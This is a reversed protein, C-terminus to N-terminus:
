GALANINEGNSLKLYEVLVNKYITFLEGCCPVVNSEEADVHEFKYIKMDQAFKEVQTSLRKDVNDLYVSLFPLFCSCIANEFPSRLKTNAQFLFKRKNSNSFTFFNIVTFCLM